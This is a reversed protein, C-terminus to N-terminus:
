VDEEKAEKIVQLLPSVAKLPLLLRGVYTSESERPLGPLASSTAAFPAPLGVAVEVLLLIINALYTPIM